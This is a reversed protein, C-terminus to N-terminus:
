YDTNGSPDCRVRGGGKAFYLLLSPSMGGGGLLHAIDAGVSFDGKRLVVLALLLSPLLLSLLLVLM